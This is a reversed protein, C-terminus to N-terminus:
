IKQTKYKKAFYTIALIAIVVLVYVYMDIPSAVAGPNNGGVGGGGVPCSPCPPQALMLMSFLLAVFTSM